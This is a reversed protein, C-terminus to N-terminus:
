GLGRWGCIWFSFDLTFIALPLARSHTGQDSAAELSSSHGSRDSHPSPALPPSSLLPDGAEPGQRIAFGLPALGLHRTASLPPDGPLDLSLTPAPHSYFPHFPTGPLRPPDEADCM